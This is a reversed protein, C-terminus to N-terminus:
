RGVSLIARFGDPALSAPLDIDRISSADIMRVPAGVHRVELKKELARVALDVALRAHLTPTNTPAAVINGRLIGRHVAASYTYSLVKVHGDMKRKRLEQLAAEASVAAGVLFSIDPHSSIANAALKAQRALGTDGWAAAVIEVRSGELATRLGADGSRSWAAGEPGPLWAIRVPGTGPEVLRKLYEGTLRGLEFSDAGARATIATSHIGNLLDVIPKGRAAYKEVLDNLGDGSVAALILADAPEEMCQTVQDRQRDLKDYGGAEYVTMRIDLRRAEMILGYNVALWLGDQLHPIVVCINWKRTVRELPTYTQREIKRATNFPPNWVDVQLPFWVDAAWSRGGLATCLLLAMAVARLVL